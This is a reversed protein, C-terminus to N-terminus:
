REGQCLFAWRWQIASESCDSNVVQLVQSEDIRVGFRDSMWGGFPGGLGLGLGTFISAYGATLSRDRMSYMDSVVISTTTFIGGGGLGAVQDYMLKADYQLSVPSISTCVSCPHACGSTDFSWVRHHRGRLFLSGGSMSRTARCCQELTRLPSHLHLNRPPFLNGALKRSERKQVRVSHVFGSDKAHTEHGNKTCAQRRSLECTAVLTAKSSRRSPKLCEDM